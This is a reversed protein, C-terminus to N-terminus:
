LALEAYWFHGVLCVERREEVSFSLQRGILAQSYISVIFAWIDKIM